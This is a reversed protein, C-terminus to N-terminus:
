ALRACGAASLRRALTVALCSTGAGGHAGILAIRRASRAAAHAAEVRATLERWAGPLVLDGRAGAGGLEGVAVGLVVCSPWVGRVASAVEEGIDHGCALLRPATWLHDLQEPHELHHVAVGAEWMSAKALAALEHDRTLLVATPLESM